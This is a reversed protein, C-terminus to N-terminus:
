IGVSHVQTSAQHSIGCLLHGSSSGDSRWLERGHQDDIATFFVLNGVQVFDRPASGAGKINLDVPLHTSPVTIPNASAIMGRPAFVTANTTGLADLVRGTDVRTLIGTSISAGVLVANKVEESAADPHQALVLAAAGSVHPAAMSTGNLTAYTGGPFTSLIGVGPAAIDVKTVGYNSFPALQDYPDSAAVSIINPLDLTAPYFNQNPQDLDIGNGLADGNGAACVFLIDAANARSIADYLSQKYETTGWSNNVVRVNAKGTTKLMVLYNIAAVADDTSGANNEDLFKVPLLTTQWAVGTVGIGNNGM